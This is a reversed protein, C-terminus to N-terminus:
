DLALNLQMMLPSATSQLGIIIGNFYEQFLNNDLLVDDGEIDLISQQFLATDLPIRIRPSLRPDVETSEDVDETEPDDVKFSVIEDLDLIIKDDFLTQSTM